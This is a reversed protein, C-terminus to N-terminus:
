IWRERMDDWATQLGLFTLDKIDETLRATQSSREWINVLKKGRKLWIIMHTSRGSIHVSGSCTYRPRKLIALFVAALKGIEESPALAGVVEAAETNAADTMMRPAADSSAPLAGDIRFASQMQFYLQQAIAVFHKGDFGKFSGVTLPQPAITRRNWLLAVLKLALLLLVALALLVLAKFAVAGEEIFNAGIHRWANEIWSRSANAQNIQALMDLARHRVEPDCDKLAGDLIPVAKDYDESKILGASYQFREEWPATGQCKVTIPPALPTPGVARAPGAPGAPGVPGAPGAPGVPGPAVTGRQRIQVLIDLAHRRVGVDCDRLAPELIATAKDYDESKMRDTAYQFREDWAAAGPCKAPNSPPQDAPQCQECVAIPCAYKATPPAVKPPSPCGDGNARPSRDVPPHCRRDLPPHPSHTKSQWACNAAHRSAPTASQWGCEAAPRSGHLLAYYSQGVFPWAASWSGHAAASPVALGCGGVAVAIAILSLARVIPM